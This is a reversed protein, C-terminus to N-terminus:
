VVSGPGEKNGLISPAILLGNRGNRAWEVRAAAARCQRVRRRRCSPLWPRPPSSCAPSPHLARGKSMMNVYEGSQADFGFGYTDKELIKAVVVSGDEGANVAIQRAPWSLAKRVIEVGHKQDENSTRVRKLAETARLLAVGGAPCSAKRSPRAPQTCPMM